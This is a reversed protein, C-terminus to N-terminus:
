RRGRNYQRLITAWDEGTLQPQTTQTTQENPYINRFIRELTGRFEHGPNGKDINGMLRDLSGAGLWYTSGADSPNEAFHRSIRDYDQGRLKGQEQLIDVVQQNTTKGPTGWAGVPNARMAQGIKEMQQVEKGYTTKAEKRDVFEPIQFMSDLPAYPNLKIQQPQLASFDVPNGLIANQIQPLGALLTQQAGVNGQQFAPIQNWMGMRLANMAADAGAIRNQHAADFLPIMDHRAVQAQQRLFKQNAENQQEQAKIADKNAKRDENAGWLGGAISGVAAVAGSLWDAM